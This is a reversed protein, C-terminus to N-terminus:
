DQDNKEKLYKRDITITCPITGNYEEPVAHWGKTEHVGDSKYAWGKIVKVTITRKYPLLNCNKDKRRLCKGFDYNCSSFMPCKAM